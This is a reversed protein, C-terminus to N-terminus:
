RQVLQRNFRRHEEVLLPTGTPSLITMETHMPSPLMLLLSSKDPLTVMIAAERVDSAFSNMASDVLKIMNRAHVANLRWDHIGNM